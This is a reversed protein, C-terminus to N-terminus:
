GIAIQREDPCGEETILRYLQRFLFRTAIREDDNVALKTLSFNESAKDFKVVGSQEKTEFGYSYVVKDASDDVKKVLWWM